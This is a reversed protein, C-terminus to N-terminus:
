HHAHVGHGHAVDLFDRPAKRFAELCSLGCFHYTEGQYEWRSEAQSAPFVMGCVRDRVVEDPLVEGYKHFLLRSVVRGSLLHEEVIEEIDQPQVGYYWVGEPYVVINPGFGCAGVCQTRTVKIAKKAEEPAKEELAKRVMDYHDASGREMCNGGLSCVFVHKDYVKM